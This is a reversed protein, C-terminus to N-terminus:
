STSICAMSLFVFGTSPYQELKNHILTSFNCYSQILLMSILFVLRQPMTMFAPKTKDQLVYPKLYRQFWAKRKVPVWIASHCDPDTMEGNICDYWEVTANGSFEYDPNGPLWESFIRTNVSQLTQPNPGICGLKELVAGIFQPWNLYRHDRKKSKPAGQVRKGRDPGRDFYVKKRKKSCFLWDSISELRFNSFFTYEVSLSLVSIM